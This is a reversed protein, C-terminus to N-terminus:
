FKLSLSLFYLLTRLNTLRYKVLIPTGLNFLWSFLGFATFFVWFTPYGRLKIWSGKANGGILLLIQM